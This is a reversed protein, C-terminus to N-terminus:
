WFEKLNEGFLFRLDRECTAMYPLYRMYSRKANEDAFFINAIKANGWRTSMKGEEIEPSIIDIGVRMLKAEECPVVEQVAQYMKDCIWEVGEKLHEIPVLSWSADHLPAFYKVGFKVDHTLLHTFRRMIEAGLGQVPANLISNYFPTGDFLRWNRSIDIYGADEFEEWAENRADFMDEYTEKYAQLLEYAVPTQEEIHRTYEELFKEPSPNKNWTQACFHSALLKKGMGYSCGLVVAKLQQREKAHTEKTAWPPLIGSQIGFALYPDGSKYAEIVKMDRYVIGGLLTEQSAYDVEVVAYGKPPVILARIWKALALPFVSARPANRSTQTGWPGLICRLMGDSGINDLLFSEKEEGQANLPNLSQLARISKLTQRYNYVINDFSYRELNDDELAPQKTKPSLPWEPYRLKVYQLMVDKNMSGIKGMSVKTWGKGDKRKELVENGRFLPMNTEENFRKKIASIVPERNDALKRLKEGDVPIGNLACYALSISFSGREVQSSYETLENEVWLYWANELHIVDSECYSLVEDKNAELEEPDARICVDRMDHKEDLNIFIQSGELEWHIKYCMSALSAEADSTLAKVSEGDMTKAEKKEEMSPPRTNVVKGSKLQRGWNWRENKNSILKYEAFTDVIQLYEPLYGLLSLLFRTEAFAFHAVLTYGRMLEELEKKQADTAKFDEYWHVVRVGEARAVLCICYVDEDHKDSFETDIILYPREQIPILPKDTYCAMIM